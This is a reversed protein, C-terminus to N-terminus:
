WPLLPWDISFKLSLTLNGARLFGGNPAVNQVIDRIYVSNHDIEDYFEYSLFILPHVHM